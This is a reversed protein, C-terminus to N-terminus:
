KLHGLLFSLVDAYMQDIVARDIGPLGHEGESISILRHEVGSKKLAAAMLVSQEYPVDTDKEGHILLTPPNQSTVNRVPMYPLFSKEDSKPNWGSVALPWLGQQRCYQYFGGGDGQRNRADSIPPGSVQRYAEERTLKSQHHRPHPSPSSYWDGVLDGYGWFSVLAAPRPTVRFGTMLTLYGGASGGAVAIRKPDAHFLEPGHEHIWRWADEIDHIIEPLQTEPALRYDISVFIIGADLLAQKLRQDVGERHGMILAGGHIWLVVPRPQRDEFRFVDAQIELDGVKKYAHTEKRHGELEQNEVKGFELYSLLDVIEELNMPDLLGAPMPSTETTGRSVIGKKPIREVVTPELPNPVVFLFEANGGALQGTIVRGQETEIRTSRYKHDVAKSPDLITELLDRRGFRAAVGDLHPGFMLGEGQFQHCRACAAEAYLERGRLRNREPSVRELVETVDAMTWKKVLPRAPRTSEAQAEVQGLAAISPALAQREHDSLGALADTRVFTVFTHMAHAGTFKEARKLWALQRRRQGLTWGHAQHNLAVLYFLQEQQTRAADLFNLTAEIAQPSQLAILLECLLEKEGQSLRPNVHTQLTASLQSTLEADPAGLRVIGVQLARLVIMRQAAILNEQLLADLRAFLLPRVSPTGQRALALLATAAALADPEELARQAWTERPQHELAIRAAHRVWLDPDSLAPWAAEIAERSPVNGSHLAELRKRRARGKEEPTQTPSASKSEGGPTAVREGVYSVRYLASQTRRGGVVFYMAGDSGFELDTVNLPKGKVFTELRGAYSAGKPTLHVAIIRGYAWDLVYLAQRYPEPFHSQEGFRVGTPSGLGVDAVRPLSDAFHDPWLNSEQRWGYDGGSVVHMVCTPRYWGAGVDWEMDADYTFLEGAANFALGYPNRFGGAFVEWSKGEPDTRVIQGCPPVVDGDFLLENWANPLLRDNGVQRLPYPSNTSADDPVRVNNGLALYIMGDPGLTLANRGHGVGGETTRLLRVEDYRDDGDTDRLRYLGKSNNAHAYLSDHAFLLGRCELLTDDITEVRTVSRGDDALTFRLLGRDERGVVFRGRPDRALSIWSGEDPAAVRVVEIRFGPLTEVTVRDTVGDRTLALKWQDYDEVQADRLQGQLPLALGAVLLGAFAVVSTRSCPM